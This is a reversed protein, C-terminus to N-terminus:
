KGKDQRKKGRGECVPCPSTNVIGRRDPQHVFKGTTKCADCHVWVYKPDPKPDTKTLPNLSM